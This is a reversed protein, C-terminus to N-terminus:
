AGQRRRAAARAREILADHKELREASPNLIRAIVDGYREKAPIPRGSYTNQGPLGTREAISDVVKAEWDGGKRTVLINGGHLDGVNYGAKQAAEQYARRAKAVAMESGPAHAPKVGPIYENLHMRDGAPGRFEELHRASSTDGAERLKRGLEAKLDMQAPVTVANDGLHASRVVIGHQPDAVLTSLRENGSGLHKIQHGPNRGRHLLMKGERIALDPDLPRLLGPTKAFRNAKELDGSEVMKRILKLGARAALKSLEDAFSAMNM